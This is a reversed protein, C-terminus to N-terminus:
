KFNMIRCPYSSSSSSISLGEQFNLLDNIYLSRQGRQNSKLTRVNLDERKGMGNTGIFKALTQSDYETTIKAGVIM